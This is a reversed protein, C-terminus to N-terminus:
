AHNPRNPLSACLDGISAESPRLTESQDRIPGQRVGVGFGSLPLAGPLTASSPLREPTPGVLLVKPGGVGKCLQWRRGGRWNMEYERTTVQESGAFYRGGIQWSRCDTPRRTV